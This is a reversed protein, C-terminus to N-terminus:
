PCPAGTSAPFWCSLFDLLDTVNVGGGNIDAGPDNVFWLSLFALLDQVDVDMPNGGFECPCGAGGCNAAAADVREDISISWSALNGTDAAGADVVNLTWDGNADLGDFGALAELPLIFGVTPDACVEVAGADNFQAQLGTNAGCQNGWLVVPTADPAILTIVLDGIFTHDPIDVDVTVDGVIFSGPVNIISDVGAPDNDPIAVLNANSLTTPMGAVDFCTGPGQDTGGMTACDSPFVEVCTGDGLCCPQPAECMAAVCDVNDGAYIGMNAANTCIDPSLDPTCNGDPLCCAGTALLSLEVDYETNNDECDGGSFTFPLILFFYEGAPLSIQLEILEDCNQPIVLAGGLVSANTTCTDADNQLDFIVPMENDFDFGLVGGPHSITWTDADRTSGMGDPDNARLWGSAHDGAAPDLAGASNSRVDGCTVAFLLDSFCNGAIETQSANQDVECADGCADAVAGTDGDGTAGIEYNGASAGGGVGGFGGLRIYYERAPEAAFTVESQGAAATAGDDNSAVCRFDTCEGGGSSPSCYVHLTTDYDTGPLDTSITLNQATASVVRHWVDATGTSVAGCHPTSESFAGVTFGTQTAGNIALNSAGDSGYIGCFDNPIAMVPPTCDDGNDIEAINVCFAVNTFSAGITTADLVETADYGNGPVTGAFLGDIGLRQNGDLGAFWVWDNGVKDNIVEVWLCEDAAVALPPDLTMTAEVIGTGTNNRIVLDGGVESFGTYTAIADAPSTGVPGAFGVSNSYFRVEFVNPNDCIDAGGIYFGGVCLETISGASVATFDDAVRITDSASQFGAGTFTDFEHCGDNDGGFDNITESCIEAAGLAPCDDPVGATINTGGAICFSQDGGLSGEFGCWATDANFAFFGIMDDDAAGTSDIWSWGNGNEAAIEIWYCTNPNMDGTTTVSGSHATVAGGGGDIAGNVVGTASVGTAQGLVAGPRGGGDEYITVRFTLAPDIASGTGDDGFYSGLWEVAVAGAPVTAAVEFNDSLRQPGITTGMMTGDDFANLVSFPGAAGAGGGMDCSTGRTGAQAPLARSGPNAVIVQQMQSTMSKWAAESVQKVNARAADASYAVNQGLSAGSAALIAAVSLACCKGNM